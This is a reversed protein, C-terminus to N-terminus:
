DEMVENAVLIDTLFEEPIYIGAQMCITYQVKAITYVSNGQGYMTKTLVKLLNAVGGHSQPTKGMRALEAKRTELEKNTKEMFKERRDKFYDKFRDFLIDFNGAERMARAVDNDYQQKFYARCIGDANENFWLWCKRVDNNINSRIAKKWPLGYWQFSSLANFFGEFENVKKWPKGKLAVLSTREEESRCANYFATRCLEELM